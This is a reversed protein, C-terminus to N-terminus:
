LFFFDVIAMWHQIQFDDFQIYFIVILRYDTILKFRFNNSHKITKLYKKTQSYNVCNSKM